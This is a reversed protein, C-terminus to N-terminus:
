DSSVPVNGDVVELIEEVDLKLARILRLADLWTPDSKGCEINAIWHPSCDLIGALDEQTFGCAKQEDRIINGFSRRQEPTPTRRKYM